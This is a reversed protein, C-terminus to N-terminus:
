SPTVLTASPALWTLVPAVASLCVISFWSTGPRVWALAPSVWYPVPREVALSAMVEDEDVSWVSAEVSWDSALPSELRSTEARFDLADVAAVSAPLAEVSSVVAFVSASADALASAAAVVSRAVELLSTVAAMWCTSASRAEFAISWFVWSSMTALRLAETVAVSSADVCTPVAVVSAVAALPAM